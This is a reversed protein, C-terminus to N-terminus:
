TPSHQSHILRMACARLRVVLPKLSLEWAIRASPFGHHEFAAAWNVSWSDVASQLNARSLVPHYEFVCWSTHKVQTKKSNVRPGMTFVLRKCKDVVTEDYNKQEFRQILQNETKQHIGNNQTSRRAFRRIEVLPWWNHVRKLHSSQPSM